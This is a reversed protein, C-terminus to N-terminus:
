GLQKNNPIYIYIYDIALFKKVTTGWAAAALSWCKTQNKDQIDSALWELVTSAYSEIKNQYFIWFKM